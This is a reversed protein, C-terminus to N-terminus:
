LLYPESKKNSETGSPNTNAQSRLAALLAIAKVTKPHEEGLIKKRVGVVQVELRAADTYRELYFFIIALNEMASVTYPHEAGLVRAKLDLVKIQLKQADAYNGLSKYTAALNGM